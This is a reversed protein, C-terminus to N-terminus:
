EEPMGAKGLGELIRESERRYIQSTADIPASSRQAAFRRVTTGLELAIYDALHLRPREIDGALAEAAALWAKGRLYAPTSDM